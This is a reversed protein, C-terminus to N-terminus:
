LPPLPGTGGVAFKLPLGVEPTPGSVTFKESRDEGVTVLQLQVKPSPPVDVACFGLWVYLVVPEYVTASM